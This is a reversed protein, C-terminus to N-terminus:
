NFPQRRPAAGRAFLLDSWRWLGSGLAVRAGGPGDGLSLLVMGRVPEARCAEPAFAVEMAIAQRLGALGKGAEGSSQIWDGRWVLLPRGGPQARAVAAQLRGDGRLLLAVAVVEDGVVM